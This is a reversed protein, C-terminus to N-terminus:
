ADGCRAIRFAGFGVDVGLIAHLADLSKYASISYWTDWANKFHFASGTLNSTQLTM